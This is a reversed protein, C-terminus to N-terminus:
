MCVDIFLEKSMFSWKNKLIKIVFILPMMFIQSNPRQNM